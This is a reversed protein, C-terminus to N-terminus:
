LSKLVKYANMIHQYQYIKKYMNWLGVQRIIYFIQEHLSLAIPIQNKLSDILIIFQKLAITSRGKIIKKNSIFLSSEWLSLHNLNAYKNIVELTRQGIGRNPTNIIRMYATDNNQNIIFKLYAIM